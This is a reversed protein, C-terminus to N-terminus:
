YFHYTTDWTNFYHLDNILVDLILPELLISYVGTNELIPDCDLCTRAPPYNSFVAIKGGM